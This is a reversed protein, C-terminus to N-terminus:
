QLFRRFLEALGRFAPRSRSVRGGAAAVANEIADMPAGKPKQITLEWKEPDSLIDGIAGDAAKEGKKLIIARTCLNQIDSPIHSSIVVTKGLSPAAAVMEEFTVVGLADLGGTPEDLLLLDPDHFTAQAVCLRKLQGRSLRGTRVHAQEELGWTALLEGTRKKLTEGRLGCLYGIDLLNSKVSLSPSFPSEDPAYGLRRAANPTGPRNGFLIAEGADAPEAGSLLRLLTSKGSGNLGLLAVVEGRGIELDVPGLARHRRFGGLAAYSKTLGRTQIVPDNM